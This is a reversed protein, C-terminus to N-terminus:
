TASVLTLLIFTIIQLSVSYPQEYLSKSVLIFYTSVATVCPSPLSLLVM